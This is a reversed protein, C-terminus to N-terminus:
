SVNLISKKAHRKQYETCQGLLSNISESISDHLVDLDDMPIVTKMEEIQTASNDINKVEEQLKGNTANIDVNTADITNKLAIFFNEMEKFKKTLQPILGAEFMGASTYPIILGFPGNWFGPLAGSYAETRITDVIGQCYSSTSEFENTLQSQLTTLKGTVNHFNASSQQLKAQGCSMKTICEGFVMILIKRQEQYTTSTRNAFLELYISLLRITLGCWEYIDQTATFYSDQANKILTSVESVFPASEKSYDELYRNLEKVTRDYMRWPIIEDLVKNHLELARSVTDVGNKTIQIVEETSSM